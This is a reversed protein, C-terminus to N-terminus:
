KNGGGMENANEKERQLRLRRFRRQRIEAVFSESARVVTQMYQRRREAEREPIGM